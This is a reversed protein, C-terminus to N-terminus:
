DSDKFTPYLGRMRLEALAAHVADAKYRSYHHIYTFLEADSLTFLRAYFLDDLPQM